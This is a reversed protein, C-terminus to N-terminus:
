HVTYQYFFLASESFHNIHDYRLMHVGAGPTMCNIIIISGEWTMIVTKKIQRIWAIQGDM